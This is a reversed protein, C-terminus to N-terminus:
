SHDKAPKPIEFQAWDPLAIEIALGGATIPTGEALAKGARDLRILALGQKGAVSKITGISREGATVDANPTLTAAAKAIVFRTRATGRHEIRSVVEQGIFCGKSFSVGGLQDLNGEHPFIQGSGIDCDSDAIGLGIRHAHYESPDSNVTLEGIARWGMADSRPDAYVTAADPADGGWAAFVKADDVAEITVQSRLKYMTLRQTLQPQQSRSCDILYGVPVKIVIFDFLLKGQPTLLAAYTASGDALDTMDSTVVNQLFGEAEEGAVKLVARDALEAIKNMTM